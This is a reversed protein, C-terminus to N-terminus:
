NNINRFKQSRWERQKATFRMFPKIYIPTCDWKVREWDHKLLLAVRKTFVEIDTKGLSFLSNFHELLKNDHKCHPNLSTVLRSRHAAIKSLTPVEMNEFYTLVIEETLRRMNDRWKTRERTIQEVQVAREDKRLAFFSGLWGTLATISIGAFLSTIDINMTLPFLQM